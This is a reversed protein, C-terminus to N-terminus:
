KIAFIVASVRPSLRTVRHVLTCTKSGPGKQFAYWPRSLKINQLPKWNIALSFSELITTNIFHLQLLVMPYWNQSSTNMEQFFSLNHYIKTFHGAMECGISFIFAKQAGLISTIFVLNPWFSCHLRSCWSINVYQQYWQKKKLLSTMIFWWFNGRDGLYRFEPLPSM